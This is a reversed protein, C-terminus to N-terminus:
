GGLQVKIYCQVSKYLFVIFGIVVYGIFKGFGYFIHTFVIKLFGRGLSVAPENPRLTRVGHHQTYLNFISRKLEVVYNVWLKRFRFSTNISNKQHVSIGTEYYIITGDGLGFNPNSVGGSIGASVDKSFQLDIKSYFSNQDFPEETVLPDSDQRGAYLYYGLAGVKGAMDARLEKINKQGYSALVTGQPEKTDGVPKTIINVVGGLSSGWVSSAPGKIIEIRDIVGVPITLTEAAGTSLQNWTVGDLLVLVHRAKAGQIEILSTSAFDMNHLNIFLGTEQRLVEAVTHANIEEIKDKHIVTINEAAQSSPKLSRTASVVLDKKDYYMLFTDYDDDAQADAAGFTGTLM